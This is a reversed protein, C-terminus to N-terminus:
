GFVSSKFDLSGVLSLSVELLSERREVLLSDIVIKLRLTLAMGPEFWRLRGFIRPLSKVLARGFVM